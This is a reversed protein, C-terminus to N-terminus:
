EKGLVKHYYPINSHVNLLSWLTHILFFGKDCYLICLSIRHKIWCADSSPVVKSSFLQKHVVDGFIAPTFVHSPKVFAVVDHVYTQHKKSLRSMSQKHVNRIQDRGGRCSQQPDWLPLTTDSTDRGQICSSWIRLYTIVKLVSKRIYKCSYSVSRDQSLRKDHKWTVWQRLLDADAVDHCQNTQQVKVLM